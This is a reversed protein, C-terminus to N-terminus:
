PNSKKLWLRTLYGRWDRGPWPGIFNTVCIEVFDLELGIALSTFAVLQLEMFPISLRALESWCM